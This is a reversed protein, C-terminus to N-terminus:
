IYNTLNITMAELFQKKVKHEFKSSFFVQSDSSLQGLFAPMPVM